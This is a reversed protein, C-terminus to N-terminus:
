RYPDEHPEKQTDELIGVTSSEQTDKSTYEPTKERTDDSADQMIDETDDLKRPTPTDQSCHGSSM